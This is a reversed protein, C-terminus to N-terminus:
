TGVVYGPLYGNVTRAAKIMGNRVVETLDRESIVSGQVTIQLTISPAQGSGMGGLMKETKPNSFIEVSSGAKYGLEPGKEGTMFWGDGVFGGAAHGTPYWKGDYGAVLKGDLSVTGPKPGSYGARESPPPGASGSQRWVDRLRAMVADIAANAATTDANVPINVSKRGVEDATGGLAGLNWTAIQAATSTPDIGFQRLSELEAALGAASADGASQASSLQLLSGKYGLGAQALAEWARVAEPSRQGHLYLATNYADQADTLQQQARTAAFYPDTTALMAERAADINEAQSAAANAADQASGAYGQTGATLAALAAENSSYTRGAAEETQVWRYVQDASLGSAASLAYAKDVNAQIADATSGLEDRGHRLQARYDADWPASSNRISSDLENVQGRVIGLYDATEALTMNGAKDKVKGTLAEVDDKTEDIKANWITWAAIAGGVLVGAAGLTQGLSTGLALSKEQSVGLKNAFSAVGLGASDVAKGVAAFAPAGVEAIKAVAIVGAGGVTALGGIALGVNAVPDPIASLIRVLHEGGTALTDVLPILKGGIDEQLNGIKVRLRDAPTAASAAAGAFEKELEALIIKQAGLVDGTEVLARVQDKQEATFSVGAKSLATMGKIPDNLAKGVQMAAASMDTGLAASMDLAAQTGRDFIRNGEGAKNQVNTFTLLLNAGSQVLEDDAGSLDSISGSLRGVQDASTWASAGTTKIVRESERGIKASEAAADYAGKAIMAVGGAVVGAAAVMGPSIKSGLKALKGEFQDADKDLSQFAKRAGREDGALVVTLKKETM